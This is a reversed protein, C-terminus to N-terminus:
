KKLTGSNNDEGDKRVGKGKRLGEKESERKQEERSTHKSDHFM